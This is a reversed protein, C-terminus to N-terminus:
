RRAFCIGCWWNEPMVCCCGGARELYGPPVRAFSDFKRERCRPDRPGPRHLGRARGRELAVVKSGGAAFASLCPVTLGVGKGRTPFARDAFSLRGHGLRPRHVVAGRQTRSVPQTRDGVEELAAGVLVAVVEALMEGHCVGGPPPAALLVWWSPAALREPRRWSHCVAVLWFLFGDLAPVFVSGLNDAARADCTQNM